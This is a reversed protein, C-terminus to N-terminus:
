YNEAGKGLSLWARLLLSHFVLPSSFVGWTVVLGRLTDDHHICCIGAELTMGAEQIGGHHPLSGLYRNLMPSSGSEHKLSEERKREVPVWQGVGIRIWLLSLPWPDSETVLAALGGSLSLGRPQSQVLAHILLWQRMRLIPAFARSAYDGCQASLM